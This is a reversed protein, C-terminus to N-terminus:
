CPMDTPSAVGYIGREVRTTKPTVVLHVAPLSGKNGNAM